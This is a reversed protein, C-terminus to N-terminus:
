ASGRTYVYDVAVDVERLYVGGHISSETFVSSWQTVQVRIVTPISVLASGDGEVANRVSDLLSNMDANPTASRVFLQVTFVQRPDSERNSLTELGASGDASVIYAGPSRAEDMRKPERSVEALGAVSQLCTELAAALTETISM